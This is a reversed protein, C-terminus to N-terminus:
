KENDHTKCNGGPVFIHKNFYARKKTELSVSHTMFVLACDRKVIKCIMGDFKIRSIDPSIWSMKTAFKM